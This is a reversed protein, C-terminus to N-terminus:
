SAGGPFARYYDIYDPPLKIPYLAGGYASVIAAGITPGLLLAPGHWRRPKRFHMAAVLHGVLAGVALLYYVAFGFGLPPFALSGAAWYFGTDLGVILRTIVAAATHNVIFITLYVGSAFQLWHWADKRKRRSIRRLLMIGLAVQTALGAVLAIEIVPFQYIPATADRVSAQPMRGGIAAFHAAFHVAVFVLLFSALTRHAQKASTHM